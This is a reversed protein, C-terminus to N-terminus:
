FDGLKFCIKDPPTGISPTFAPANDCTYGLPIFKDGWAMCAASDCFPGATGDAGGMETECQTDENCTWNAYVFKAAELNNAEITCSECSQGSSGCESITGYCKNLNKGYFPLSCCKGSSPCFFPFLSDTCFIVGENEDKICNASLVVLFFFLSCKQLYSKLRVM